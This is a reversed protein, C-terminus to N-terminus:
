HMISCSNIELPGKLTHSTNAQQGAQGKEFNLPKLNHLAAITVPSPNKSQYREDEQVRIQPLVADKALLRPWAHASLGSRVQVEPLERLAAARSRTQLFTMEVRSFDSSPWRRHLNSTKSIHNVLSHPWAEDVTPDSSALSWRIVAWSFDSLWSGATCWDCRWSM